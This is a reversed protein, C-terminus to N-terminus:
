KGGLLLRYLAHLLIKMDMRLSMNEIYFFDYPLMRKVDDLPADCDGKLQAWGTIGPQIKFRRVYLPFNQKLAEALAPREPRPGVLSLDGKLVNIFRLAKDLPLSRMIKWFRLAVPNIEEVGNQGETIEGLHYVTFLRGGKGVRQQASFIFDRSIIRRTIAATLWLPFFAVLVILAVIIDFGRKARREWAPMSLPMVEILPSGYIQNTRAQGLIVDFLAPMVKFTVALDSCQTFIEAIKQRNEDELAIIIEEVKEHRAIEHIEALAGLFPCAKYAEQLPPGCDDIFGAIDYGLAPFKRIQDYLERAKGGCGVILAKRMGIGAELLTRQFTRLAVRGAGVAVIMLLWYSFILIRSTSLPNSADQRPEITVVFILFVGLSVTKGISVLEDVRSHAYWSRYLGYFAFLLFWFAFVL